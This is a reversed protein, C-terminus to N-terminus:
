QCARPPSLRALGSPPNGGDANGWVFGDAQLLSSAIIPVHYQEVLALPRGSSPAFCGLEGDSAVWIRGGSLDETPYEGFSPMKGKTSCVDVCTEALLRMPSASFYALFGPAGPDGATVWIRSPTAVIGYGGQALAPERIEAQVVGTAADLKFLTMYYSPGNVIAYAFRGASDVAFGMCAGLNRAVMASRYARGTDPNLWQLTCSRTNGYLPTRMLYAGPGGFLAPDAHTRLPVRRIRVLTRPNLETLVAPGESTAHPSYWTVGSVWLRGAVVVPPEAGPLIRSQAVVRGSRPDIRVIRSNLATPGHLADRVAYLSGDAAVLGGFSGPVVIRAHWAPAARGVSEAAVSTAVLSGAAILAGALARWGALRPWSLRAGGSVDHACGQGGHRANCDARRPVGALGRRVNPSRLPQESELSRALVGIASAFGHRDEV